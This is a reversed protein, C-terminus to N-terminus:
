GWFPPQTQVNLEKLRIRSAPDTRRDTIKFVDFARVSETGYIAGNYYYVSWYGGFSAPEIPPRDFYGSHPRTVFSSRGATTSSSGIITATITARVPHSEESAAGVGEVASVAGLAGTITGPV